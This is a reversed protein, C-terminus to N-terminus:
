APKQIPAKAKGARSLNSFMSPASQRKFLFLSYSRHDPRDGPHRGNIPAVTLEIDQILTGRLSAVSFAKVWCFLVFICIGIDWMPVPRIRKEQAGRRHLDDVCPRDSREHHRRKAVM